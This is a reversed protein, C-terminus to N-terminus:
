GVNHGTSNTNTPQTPARTTSTVTTQRDYTHTATDQKVTTIDGKHKHM